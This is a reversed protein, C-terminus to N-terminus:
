AFRAIGHRDGDGAYVAVTGAGLGIVGIRLAGDSDPHMRLAVGLGSDPGYYSSPTARRDEHTYQVGHLIRGHQLSVYHDLAGPTGGEHVKVVGYFGRHRALTNARVRELTWADTEPDKKLEWGRANALLAGALVLLGLLWTLLGPPNWGREVRASRSAWLLLLACTLLSLHYEWLEPLVLPAALGIVVGGLAGGASMCLYFLTLRAPAPRLRVLEGHCLMCGVFLTVCYGGLQYVLALEADIFLVLCALLLALPLAAFYLPRVYWRERDFCIIFTLLYLALPLVWLFPVVAVDQCMQNTTALLLASGGASLGIWLLARAPAIPRAPARRPQPEIGIAGTPQATRGGSMQDTKNVVYAAAALAGLYLLYLASWVWAQTDLRLQPEVVVPYCLLALLSGLNSLAYLRYPSRDPHAHAFCRQLLPGGASLVVFPLGVTATLLLIIQAAPNTDASPKWREAPIIPLLLVVLGALGLHWLAQRPPPGRRALWHALAYGALLLTQFVVLSAAWVAPTSGFWPLIFRGLLPQVFFLLFSGLAIAAAFPLRAGARNHM